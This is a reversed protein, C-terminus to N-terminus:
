DYMWVFIKIKKPLDKIFYESMEFWIKQTFVEGSVINIKDNRMGTEVCLYYNWNVKFSLNKEFINLIVNVIKGDKGYSNAYRLFMGDHVM